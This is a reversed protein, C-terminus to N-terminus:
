MVFFLIVPLLLCGMSLSRKVGWLGPIIGVATSVILILLGIWSSFYIAMLIILIIIGMCLKPYSIKTILKAFVRVLWMTLFTAIGGALLAAALYAILTNLDTKELIQMMAVVAGNRAKEITYLAVLSFAFNVTNIGGVLVIFAYNGINGLFESAIIAAQASGLGPFLGAISGTITGATVVKFMNKKGVEISDSIKQPPVKVNESLSTILTSIGFLGSLMPLLPQELNPIGVLVILGLAGSMLFVTLGKIKGSIGKEKWIMFTCAAILIWGIHPEFFAYMLPIIPILFPSVAITLILCLLSGITALKVAEFGKGELLLRHGPLVNLVQDADPAGLFVSPLVDLFTHTIAMAVIFVGLSVASVYVLLYGSFSVLLVSVLNIHIGPTLGTFIGFFCGLLVAAFLEIFM